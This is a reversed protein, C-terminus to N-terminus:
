SYVSFNSHVNWMSAGLQSVSSFLILGMSFTEPLLQLTSSYPFITLNKPVQFLFLDNFADFFLELQSNVTQAFNNCPLSYHLSLGLQCLQGLAIDYLVGCNRTLQCWFYFVYLLQCNFGCLDQQFTV